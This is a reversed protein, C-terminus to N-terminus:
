TRSLSDRLARFSRTLREDVRADFQNSNYTSDRNAAYNYGSGAEAEAVTQYNGVNPLPFFESVTSRLAHDPTVCM